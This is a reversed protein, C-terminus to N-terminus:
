GVDRQKVAADVILNAMEDGPGSGRFLTLQGESEWEEYINVRNMELPDPAVVFDLCGPTQRAELMAVRSSELFEERRGDEITLKGSVIILDLDKVSLM